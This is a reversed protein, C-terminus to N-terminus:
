GTIIRKSSSPQQELDPNPIRTQIDNLTLLIAEQKELNKEVKRSEYYQMNVYSQVTKKKNRQYRMIEEIQEQKDKSKVM